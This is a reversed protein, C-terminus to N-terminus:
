GSNVGYSASLAARGALAAPFFTTIPFVRRSSPCVDMAWLGDMLETCDVRGFRSPDCIVNLKAQGMEFTRVRLYVGNHHIRPFCM